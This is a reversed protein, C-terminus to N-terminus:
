EAKILGRHAFLNLEPYRQAANTLRAGISGMGRDWFGAGHHHRTLWFDHGACAEPSGADPHNAAGSKNYHAYATDLLAANEDRFKRCDDIAHWLFEPHIDALGYNADFHVDEDGYDSDTSSWLAAILYHKTFDDLISARTTEDDLALNDLTVFHDVSAEFEITKGDVEVTCTGSDFAIALYAAAAQANPAHVRIAARLKLDFLFEKPKTSM